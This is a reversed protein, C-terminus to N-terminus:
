LWPEAQSARQGCGHGIGTHKRAADADPSAEAGKLSHAARFIEALLEASKEAGPGKELALLDRTLTQLHEEAEVAFTALLERLLEDSFEM